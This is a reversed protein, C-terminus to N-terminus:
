QPCPGAVSWDNFAAPVDVASGDVGGGPENRGGACALGQGCGRDGCRGASDPQGGGRQAAEGQTVESVRHSSESNAQAGPALALTDVRHAAHVEVVRVYGGRARAAADGVM